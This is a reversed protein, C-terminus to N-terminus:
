SHSPQELLKVVRSFVSRNNHISMWRMITCSAYTLHIMKTSMAIAEDDIFNSNVIICVNHNLGTSIILSLHIFHQTFRKITITYPRKDPVSANASPTILGLKCVYTVYNHTCNRTLDQLYKYNCLLKSYEFIVEFIQTHMVVRPRIFYVCACM